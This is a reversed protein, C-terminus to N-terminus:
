KDWYNKHVDSCHCINQRQQRRDEEKGRMDEDLLKEKRFNLETWGDASSYLTIAEM